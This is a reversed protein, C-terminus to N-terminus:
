WKKNKKKSIIELTFKVEAQKLLLLQKKTVVKSFKEFYKAEIEGERMRTNALASAAVEYNHDSPNAKKEIEHALARGNRNM